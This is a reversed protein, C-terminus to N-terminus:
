EGRHPNAQRMTTRMRDLPNHRRFASNHFSSDYYLDNNKNIFFTNQLSPLRTEYDMLFRLSASLLEEDIM